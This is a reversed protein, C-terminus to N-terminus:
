KNFGTTTSVTSSHFVRSLRRSQLGFGQTTRHPFVWRKGGNKVVTPFGHDFWLNEVPPKWLRM